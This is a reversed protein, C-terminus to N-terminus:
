GLPESGNVVLKIENFLTVNNDPFTRGSDCYGEHSKPFNWASTILVFVYFDCPM